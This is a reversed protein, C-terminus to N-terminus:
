EAWFDHLVARIQDVRCPVYETWERPFMRLCDSGLFRDDLLVIVGRDTATRIVRGASQLVKNMGPYLYAYNFGEGTREEYYSRLLETRTGVQPLGCGVVIAGILRSGTLDIGEAFVGGMVCFGVMTMRPDEYFNELFIERDMENMYRSQAVWNVDPEDFEKRYVALVDTMFKYSPFFAIYNGHRSMATDHIYKAIKRYMPLGRSRYRTSVDSGVIVVKQDNAFPSRAYVAYVDDRTTFMNKYYNVPLLTASFFVASRGKDVMAQLNKAPNVCFLHVCLHNEEDTDAYVVYDDDMREFTSVFDTIEFYFDLLSERLVANKQEKFLVQLEGFARLAEAHLDGLIVDDTILLYPNKADEAGALEKKIALLKKNLRELARAASRSVTKVTKKAALVNEKVIVASYMERARDVLNHAEDVLYIYEGRVGDGFFRRLHANPDFAYNYDCLVADCWSSVDLGLEFPCVMREMATAYIVDRDFFEKEQLLDFTADNVRDFHGKAYPCDDPNCSPENMPCIKEKSTLVITKMVLGKDMLIRFAEAGVSLTQNKATLYFIKDALGAGVARVSPYVVSLTKGVGTPAMLFLEQKESITRYVSTVLSKQGPRYEFPFALPEMSADRQRKYEAHWRCWVCYKGVLDDFWSLIEDMGYTSDFIHIRDNDELDVYTMRIDITDRAFDTETGNNSDTWAAFDTLFLIAAYCKAQALHIPEPETLERVDMYLGKIEDVCLHPTKSESTMTEETKGSPKSPVANTFIGDARGEIRLVFDGRDTEWSLPVEARYDGAKGKQIKRHARGGALMAETDVGSGTRSVIDGSRLIFEVLRRVSIRILEPEKQSNQADTKRSMSNIIVNSIMITFQLFRICPLVGPDTDRGIDGHCEQESASDTIGRGKDPPRHLRRHATDHSDPDRKGGKSHDTEDCQQDRCERDVLLFIDM